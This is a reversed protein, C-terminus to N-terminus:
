DLLTIKLHLVVNVTANNGGGVPVYFTKATLTADALKLADLKGSLELTTTGTEPIAWPLMVVSAAPPM